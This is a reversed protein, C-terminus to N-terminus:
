TMGLAQKYTDLVAEQAARDDPKMARLRVITQLAKRDMGNGVAEKFIDSRDSQMDKIQENMNEIREVIATLQEKAVSNHGQAPQNM